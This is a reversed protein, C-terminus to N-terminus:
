KGTVNEAMGLVEAPVASLVEYSKGDPTVRYIFDHGWPDTPLTSYLQKWNPLDKPNQVLAALGEAATPYRGNDDRFADLAVKIGAIDAKAPTLQAMQATGGAPKPTAAIGFVAAVGFVMALGALVGVTLKEVISLSFKTEVENTRYNWTSRKMM